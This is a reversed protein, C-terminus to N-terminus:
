KVGFPNNSEEGLESYFRKEGTYFVDRNPCDDESVFNCKNPLLKDKVGTWQAFFDVFDFGNRQSNIFKTETLKSNLIVFPVQYSVKYGGNHILINDENLSLGHDSFYLMAWEKGKEQKDQQLLQYINELLKDTEKISQVYCSFDRDYREDKFPTLYVDYKGYSRHCFPSHSGFLHVFVVKKAGNSDNLAQKIHPLLLTDSPTKSITNKDLFVEYYVDTLFHSYQAQKGIGSVLSDFAGIEFQNSLWYTSFGSLNALHIVSNGANKHNLYNAILMNPISIATVAGPALYNNFQIRPINSLFPTNEVHYGYAHMADRRVSEGIVVVYTDYPISEVRPQWQPKAQLATKQTQIEQKAGEYSTYLLYPQKILFNRTDQKKDTIYEKLKDYGFSHVIILFVLIYTTKAKIKLLSRFKILVFTLLLEIIVFVYLKNPLNVLFDFVHRKDAVLASLVFSDNVEGYVIGCPSLIMALLSSFLVLVNFIIKYRAVVIFILSVFVFHLGNKYGLLRAIVYCYCIVCIFVLCKSILENKATQSKLRLLINV